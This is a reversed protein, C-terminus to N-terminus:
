EHWALYKVIHDRCASSSLTELYRSRQESCTLSSLSNRSRCLRCLALGVPVKAGLSDQKTTYLSCSKDLRSSCVSRATKNSARATPLLFSFYSKTFFFVAKANITYATLAYHVLVGFSELVEPHLSALLEVKLRLLLRTVRFSSRLLVSVAPSPTSGSTTCVSASNTPRPHLM